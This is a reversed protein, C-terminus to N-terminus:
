KQSVQVKIYELDTQIKVLALQLQINSAEQAKIAVTNERQRDELDALRYGFVAYQSIIAVSVVLIAWAHSKLWTQMLLTYEPKWFCHAM